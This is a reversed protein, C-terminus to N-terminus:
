RVHEASGAMVTDMFRSQSDVLNFSNVIETCQILKCWFASM